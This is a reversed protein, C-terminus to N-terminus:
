NVNPTIAKLKEIEGNDINSATFKIKTGNRLKFYSRTFPTYSLTIQEINSLELRTKIFLDRYITVTNETVEIYNRNLLFNALNAMLLSIFGFYFYYIFGSRDMAQYILLCTFVVLLIINPLSRKLQIM